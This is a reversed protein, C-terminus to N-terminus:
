GIILTWVCLNTETRQSKSEERWGTHPNSLTTWKTNSILVLISLKHKQM